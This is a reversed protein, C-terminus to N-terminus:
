YKIVKIIEVVDDFITTLLIVFGLFIWVNSFIFKLFKVM